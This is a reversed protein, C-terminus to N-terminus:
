ILFIRPFVVDTSVKLLLEIKENQQEYFDGVHRKKRGNGRKRLEAISTADQIKSRLSYPDHGDMNVTSMSMELDPEAPHTSSIPSSPQSAPESPAPAPESSSM